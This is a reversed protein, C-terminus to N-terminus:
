LKLGRLYKLSDPICQLPTPTEDEIFYHEVGAAQAATLIGPWDLQGTGVAVNDTPPASGTSLGTVAGKRIDKVHALAWRGPYKAFLLAPDQGAHFAWFIDMEFCVLEPDTERVLVDFALEGRAAGTPTFEFGHPHYGFRIGEAKCAAGFVNFDAAFKRAENAGFGSPHPLSPIILFKAGLTKVERIAAAVDKKVADYGMHAAVATLGRSKLEAAFQGPTLNGTGATEVTKFGYSKTLDLAATTSEKTQARLSWMQLGLADKFNPGPAASLSAIALPLLALRLLNKM